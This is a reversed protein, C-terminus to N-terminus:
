GTSSNKSDRGWAADDRARLEFRNLVPLLEVLSHIKEDAELLDPDSLLTSYGYLAAISRMGAAAAAVVDKGDDGVYVCSGVELELATAAAFLGDPAPKPQPVADGCVLVEPQLGLFEVLPKTFHQGKNTVIGWRWGAQKLEGLCSQVGDFLVTSECM